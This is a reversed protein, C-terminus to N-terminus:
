ENMAQITAKFILAAKESDLKALHTYLAILSYATKELQRDDTIKGDQELIFNQEPFKAKFDAVFEFVMERSAKKDYDHKQKLVSLIINEVRKRYYTKELLVQYKKWPYSGYTEPYELQLVLLPDIKVLEQLLSLHAKVLDHVVEHSAELIYTDRFEKLGKVLIAKAQKKDKIPVLKLSLNDLMKLYNESDNEQIFHCTLNETCIKGLHEKLLARIKFQGLFFLNLL